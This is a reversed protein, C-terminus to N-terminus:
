SDDDSWPRTCKVGGDKRSRSVTRVTNMTCFDEFISWYRFMGFYFFGKDMVFHMSLPNEAHLMVINIHIDAMYVIPVM